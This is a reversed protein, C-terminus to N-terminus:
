NNEEKKLKLPLYLQKAASKHEIIKTVEYDTKLGEATDWSRTVLTVTLFDGKSFSVYNEDVKRLFDPDSIKVLFTNAGDSLRWKNEEKFSLSQIAFVAERESEKILQEGVEPVQFYDAEEKGASEVVGGDSKLEIKEIGDKKLPQVASSIAKRVKVDQYLNFVKKDVEIINNDGEFTIQINNNTIETATQPARGRAFKILKWLGAGGGALGLIKILNLAATIQESTFLGVIQDAIKQIVDFSVGFSGDKFHKVRVSISVDPGNLVRNSEELLSGFALLAPALERVDMSGAELAPGSYIVKFSANSM